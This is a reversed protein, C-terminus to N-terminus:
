KKVNEFWQDIEEKNKVSLSFIIKNGMEPNVIEENM